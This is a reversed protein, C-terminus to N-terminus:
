LCTLGQPFSQTKEEFVKLVSGTSATGVKLVVLSVLALMRCNGGGGEGALNGEDPEDRRGWKSIGPLRVKEIGVGM